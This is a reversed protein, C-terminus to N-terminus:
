DAFLQDISQQIADRNHLKDIWELPIGQDGGVGFVAGCAAGLVISRGCNDGGAYINRRIAGVYSSASKLNYMLSPVGAGLDCHLGYRATMEPVTEDLSLVESLLERTENTAASVGEAIATDISDGKVVMRLVQTCVNAFDIARPANNTVKVAAVALENLESDDAHCAVLAPLKSIAPLQEDIAGPYSEDNDLAKILARIYLLAEEPHSTSRAFNAAEEQLQEGQYRKAAALVKTLIGQREKAEGSYSISNAKELADSELRYIRDLTERTPRDIYGVFEGGYGFHTRFQEQYHQRDFVGNCAVLSHLMVLCQEGYHSLEGAAKKPHAFYGVNGRYDEPDPNRFEPKDPVVKAIRKQSYLWHLGMTASDAVLAGLICNKARAVQEQDM